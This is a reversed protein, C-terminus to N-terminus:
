IMSQNNEIPSFTLANLERNYKWYGKTGNLNERESNAKYKELFEELAAYRDEYGPHTSDEKTEEGDGEMLSFFSINNLCTESPFGSNILMKTANIDANIETRRSIRNSLLKRKNEKLGKGEKGEQLSDKFSDHNIFHSLEHGITCALLDKKKDYTRFTSRSINITGHSFAYAEIGNLLYSQRIAENIDKAAEGEYVKFPNIEGYFQCKDEECLKLEEASWKTRSGANITFTIQQEGLDNKDAIQNVITKITKYESPMLLQSNKLKNISGFIGLLGVAIAALYFIRKRSFNRTM